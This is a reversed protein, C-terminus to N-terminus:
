DVVEWDEALIDEQYATAVTRNGSRLTAVITSNTVEEIEELTWYGGWLSRAIKKGQKMAVIAQGFTLNTKPDLHAFNM